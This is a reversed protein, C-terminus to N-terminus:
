PLFVLHTPPLTMSFSCSRVYGLGRLVHDVSAEKERLEEKEQRKLADLEDTLLGKEDMIYRHSKRKNTISPKLDANVRHITVYRYKAKMILYKVMAKSRGGMAESNYPKGGDEDGSSSSAVEEEEERRDPNPLSLFGGEQPQREVVLGGGESSRLKM